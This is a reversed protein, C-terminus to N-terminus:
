FSLVPVNFYEGSFSNERVSLVFQNDHLEGITAEILFQTNEDMLVGATLPFGGIWGFNSEASEELTIEFGNETLAGSNRFVHDRLVPNPGTFDVLPSTDSTQAFTPAVAFTSWALLCISFRAVIQQINM